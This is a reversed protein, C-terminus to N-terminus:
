LYGGGVEELNRGACKEPKRWVEELNGISKWGNVHIEALEEPNGRFDRLIELIGM